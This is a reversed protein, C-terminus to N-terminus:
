CFSRGDSKMFTIFEKELPSLFARRPHLLTFIHKGSLGDIQLSKLTGYYLEKRVALYSLISFGKGAAVFAKIAEISNLEMIVNMQNFSVGLEDLAKEMSARIGSGPERVIMPLERLEDISIIDKNDSLVGPPAIVILDDLGITRAVIEDTMCGLPQPMPGEIVAADLSGENLMELIKKSNAITLKIDADPYTEKFCYISCPIAYGGVVTSAGLLLQRNLGNQLKIIEGCLTEKISM